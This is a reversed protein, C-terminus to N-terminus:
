RVITAQILYKRDDEVSKVVAIKEKEVESKIPLNLNIRIKNSKFGTL